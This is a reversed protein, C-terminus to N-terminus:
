SEVTNTTYEEVSKFEHSWAQAEDADTFELPIRKIYERDTSTCWYRVVKAPTKLGFDMTYLENGMETKGHILKADLESFLSETDRTKLLAMRQEINEVSLIQRASMGSHRAFLQNKVYKVGNYDYQSGFYVGHIYYLKYGDAFEMAASDTSSLNAGDKRIHTPMRSIVWEKDFQLSSYINCDVLDRYKKFKDSLAVGIKDFFDYHAVWGYDSIDARYSMDYNKKTGLKRNAYEQCRMPSDLITVKPMRMNLIDTMVYRVLKVAKKEDTGHKLKSLWEDRVELMLQKQDETLETIKSM